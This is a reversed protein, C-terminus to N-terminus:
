RYVVTWLPPDSQVIYRGQAYHVMPHSLGLASRLMPLALSELLKVGQATKMADILSLAQSIIVEAVAPHSGGLSAERCKRAERLYADAQPYM